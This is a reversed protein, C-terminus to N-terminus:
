RLYMCDVLSVVIYGPGVPAGMVLGTWSLHWWSRKKNYGTRLQKICIGRFKKGLSNIFHSFLICCMSYWKHIMKLLRLLPWKLETFVAAFKRDIALDTNKWVNEVIVFCFLLFIAEWVIIFIAGFDAYFAVLNLKFMAKWEKAVCSSFYFFIFFFLVPYLIDPLSLFVSSRVFPFIIVDDQSRVCCMTAMTVAFM